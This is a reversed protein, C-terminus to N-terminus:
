ATTLGVVVGLTRALPAAELLPSVRLLLYLGVHISVSGYFLASSPTPGEMARPLWASFPLQASKGFAAILLMLAIMTVALGPLAAAGQLASIHTSGLLEHVSVIAIMFGVDCIRYTTFARVASSVPEAREFFYGIFLASCIGII